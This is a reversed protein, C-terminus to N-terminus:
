IMSYPVDDDEGESNHGTQNPTVESLEPEEYLIEGHLKSRDKGFAFLPTSNAPPQSFADNMSDTDSFARSKPSLPSKTSSFSSDLDHVRYSGSEHLLSENDFEM